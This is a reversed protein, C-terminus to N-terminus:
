ILFPSRMFFIAREVLVPYMNNTFRKKVPDNGIGM